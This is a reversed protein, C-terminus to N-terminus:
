MGRTLEFLLAAASRTGFHFDELCFRENPSHAGDDPSGWGLLLISEVGLVEKFLNVIPISGGERIFVPHKGFGTEIARAAAGVSPNDRSVLVPDAGHLEKIEVTVGPPAVSLVYNKFLSNIKSTEQNPVLRMSVKAGAKAPIITKAGEGSFGGWIGNVDLTPRASKREMPTYGREGVLCEVGLYDMLMREDVPLSAMENREWDALELVDDYFGPIAVTGDPNKLKSIIEALGQVPNTILGGFGGSHLDFRPGRIDIQFYSLGRLGYTIAPIGRIFQSGDSVAITDCRLAERHNELFKKLSPSGIEEEGEILVKVNIPLEGMVAIIGEMAKLYTFFQGKDDTAGRAYVYGDRIGPAFPPTVWEDMPDPPQVDYHGYILLTPRDAHPCMSGIVVPHRDTNEIRAHLGMRKLQNHVWEAARQIDHAHRSDTSVSPIRLFEQLEHVYRERNEDIKGLVESPIM